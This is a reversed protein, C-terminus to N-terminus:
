LLPFSEFGASPWLSHDLLSAMDIVNNSIGKMVVPVWCALLCFIRARVTAAVYLILSLTVAPWLHPFSFGLLQTEDDTLLTGVTDKEKFLKRRSFM